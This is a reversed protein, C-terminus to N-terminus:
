IQLRDISLVYRVATPAEDRVKQPAFGAPTPHPSASPLGVGRVEGTVPAARVPAATQGGPPPPRGRPRREAEEAGGPGVVLRPRALGVRGASGEVARERAVSSNM